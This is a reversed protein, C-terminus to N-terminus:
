SKSYNAEAFKQYIGNKLVYDIVKMRGNSLYIYETKGQEIEENGWVVYLTNSSYSGSLPFSVGRSDFWYGTFSSDSDFKYYGHAEMSFSGDEFRNTFSLRYFQKNLAQTWDMSFSAEKGLLTGNGIWNGKFINITKSQFFGTMSIIFSAVITLMLTKM